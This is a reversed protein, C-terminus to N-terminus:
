GSTAPSLGQQGRRGLPACPVGGDCHSEGQEGELGRDGQPAHGCDGAGSVTIGVTLLDAGSRSDESGARVGHRLGDAATDHGTRGRHDSGRDGEKDGVRGPLPRWWLRRQRASAVAMEVTRWGRTLSSAVTEQVRAPGVLCCADGNRAAGAAGVLRHAGGAGEVSLDLQPGCPRGRM